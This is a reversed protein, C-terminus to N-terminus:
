QEAAKYALFALLGLSIAAYWKAATLARNTEDITNQVNTLLDM